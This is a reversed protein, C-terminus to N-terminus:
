PARDGLCVVPFCTCVSALTTLQVIDKWFSRRRPRAPSICEASSFTLIYKTITDRQLLITLLNRPTGYPAAFNKDQVSNNILSFLVCRVRYLTMVQLPRWRSSRQRPMRPPFSLERSNQKEIIWGEFMAFDRWEVLEDYCPWKWGVCAATQPKSKSM